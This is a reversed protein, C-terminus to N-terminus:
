WDGLGVVEQDGARRARVAKKAISPKRKAAQTTRMGSMRPWTLAVWLASPSARSQMEAPATAVMATTPRSQTRYPERGTVTAETATSLMATGSGACVWM